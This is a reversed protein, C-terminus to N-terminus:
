VDTCVNQDARKIQEMFLEFNLFMKCKVNQNMWVTCERLSTFLNAVFVSFMFDLALCM